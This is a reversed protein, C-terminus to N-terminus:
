MESLYSLDGFTESLAEANIESSSIKVIHDSAKGTGCHGGCIWGGPYSCVDKCYAKYPCGSVKAFDCFAKEEDPDLGRAIGAIAMVALVVKANWRSM